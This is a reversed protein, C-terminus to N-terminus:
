LKNKNEQTISKVIRDVVLTFNYVKLKPSVVFIAYVMVNITPSGSMGSYVMDQTTKQQVVLNIIGFCKLKWVVIIIILNIM